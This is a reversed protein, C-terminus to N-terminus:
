VEFGTSRSVKYILRDDLSLELERVGREPNKMYNWINIATIMIPNDFSLFITNYVLSQDIDRQGFKRVIPALWMNRDDYTDNVNNM